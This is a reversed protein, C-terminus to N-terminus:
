QTVQPSGALFRPPSVQVITYLGTVRAEQLSRARTLIAVEDEECGLCLARLGRLGQQQLHLLVEVAPDDPVDEGSGGRHGYLGGLTVVRGLVAGKLQELAKLVTRELHNEENVACGGAAAALGHKGFHQRRLRWAQETIEPQVEFAELPFASRLPQLADGRLADM